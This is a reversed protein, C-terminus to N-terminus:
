LCFSAVFLGRVAVSHEYGCAAATINPPLYVRQPTHCRECSRGLGLQGMRNSGFAFLKGNGLLLLAHNEGCVLARVATEPECGEFLLAPLEVQRPTPICSQLDPMALQGCSNGGWAYLEGSAQVAYSCYYGCALLVTCAPAGRVPTPACSTAVAAAAAAGPAGGTGLEGHANFGWAVLTGGRLALECLRRALPFPMVRLPSRSGCRAHWGSLVAVRVQRKCARTAPATTTAKATALAAVGPPPQVDEQQHQQTTQQTRTDNARNAPYQM